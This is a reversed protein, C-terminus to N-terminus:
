RVVISNENEDQVLGLSCPYFVIEAVLFEGDGAKMTIHWL